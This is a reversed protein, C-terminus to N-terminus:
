KKKKPYYKRKKKVVLETSTESQTEEIKSEQKIVIPRLDKDYLELASDVIEKIEENKHYDETMEKLSPQGYNMYYGIGLSAVVITVILLLVEIGTM